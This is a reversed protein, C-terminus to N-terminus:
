RAGSIMGAFVASQKNWRISPLTDFFPGDQAVAIFCGPRDMFLKADGDLYKSGGPLLSHLDLEGSRLAIREGTRLDDGIWRHGNADVYQIKRIAAPVSSTVVPPAGDRAADTNLLQIEARSPVVAEARQAQVSRSAFWDGSYNRGAQGYSPSRGGTGIELPTLVLDEATGFQRSLLVGTRAVQEQFVVAKRQDPLLLCFMAREGSGGFGDQLVIFGALLLSAAVSIVPTTWFLRHRRTAKAFWFLNLPGVVLAFIVIFAILFPANLPIKGIEHAMPWDAQTFSANTRESGTKDTNATVTDLDLPKGDWPLLQVHGLGSDSEEGTEPLGVGARLSPDATQACVFLRGGHSVWDHIAARRSADLAAYDADTLWLADLGILSRWDGGLLSLDVPTGLLDLGADGYRKTLSSWIPTALAESMGVVHTGSGKGTTNVGPMPTQSQDVAYGEIQVYSTQYYYSYTSSSLAMLVSVRSTQGSEVRLSETSIRTSHDNSPSGTGNCVITWTRATGSANHITVWLPLCGAPPSHEFPSSIEITVGSSADTAVEARWAARAHTMGAVLLLAAAGLRRFSLPSM